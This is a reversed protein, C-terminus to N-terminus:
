KRYNQEQYLLKGAAVVKPSFKFKAKSHMATYKMHFWM